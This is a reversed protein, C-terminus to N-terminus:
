PLFGDRQGVQAGGVCFVRVRQVVLINSVIWGAVSSRIGTLLSSFAFAFLTTTVIENPKDEGIEQMIKTAIMHFFPKHHTAKLRYHFCSLTARVVVEIMM